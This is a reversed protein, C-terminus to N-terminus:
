PLKLNVRRFEGKRIPANVVARGKRVLANCAQLVDWPVEDLKEALDEYNIFHEPMALLVREEIASTNTWLSDDDWECWYVHNGWLVFHSECGTDRWYSPFLSIAEGRRYIRWAPGARKDLNIVLADGCSCPCDMLLMRPVGRHVLATDGPKKLSAAAADRSPFIGTFCIKKVGPM